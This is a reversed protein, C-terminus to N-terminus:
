ARLQNAPLKWKTKNRNHQRMYNKVLNPKRPEMSKHVHNQRDTDNREDDIPGFKGM